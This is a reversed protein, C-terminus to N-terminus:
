IPKGEVFIDPWVLAQLQKKTVLRVRRAEVLGILSIPFGAHWEVPLQREMPLLQPTAAAPRFRGFEITRDAAAPGTQRRTM